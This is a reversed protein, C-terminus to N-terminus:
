MHKVADIRFGAVGMDIVSNLFEVIKDQVSEKGQNLDPLGVLRCNRIEFVNSYNQINCFENFEESQYPVAPYQLKPPDAISNATGIIEADGAAMHNIVVDVYVRINHSLCTKIMEEFQDVTGLIRSLKSSTVNSSM